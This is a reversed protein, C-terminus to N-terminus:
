RAVEAGMAKWEAIIADARVKSDQDKLSLVSLLTNVLRTRDEDSQPAKLLHPQVEASFSDEYDDHNLGIVATEIVPTVVLPRAAGVKVEEPRQGGTTMPHGLVLAVKDWQGYFYEQLLPIVKRVLVVRLDEPTMAKM